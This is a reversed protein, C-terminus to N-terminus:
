SPSAPAHVRCLSMNPPSRSPLIETGTERARLSILSQHRINKTALLGRRQSLFSCNQRPLLGFSTSISCSPSLELLSTVPTVKYQQLTAGANRDEHRRSRLYGPGLSAARTAGFLCLHTGSRQSSNTKIAESQPKRTDAARETSTSPHVVHVEFARPIPQLVLVEAFVSRIDVLILLAIHCLVYVFHELSMHCLPVSAVLYLCYWFNPM